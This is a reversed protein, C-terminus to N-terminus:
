FTKDGKKHIPIIISKKWEEPLEEENWTSRILKQIVSCLIECGAKIVEAPIKETGLSKYSRLNGNAIEVKVLPYESVLPHAEHIDKQKVNHVEHVNLAQNFFNKWM